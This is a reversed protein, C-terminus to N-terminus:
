PPRSTPQAIHLPSHNLVGDHRRAVCAFVSTAQPARRSPFALSAFRLCHRRPSSCRSPLDVACAAHGVVRSRSLRALSKARRRSSSRRLRLGVAGSAFASIPVRCVRFALLATTSVLSALSPRRCSPRTGVVRSRSLRALSKPRRRSSSRRLRLGVASSACTSTPYCSVCFALLAKPCRAVRPFTSPVPTARQRFADALSACTIKLRRRPSSRRM